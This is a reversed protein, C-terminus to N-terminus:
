DNLSAGARSSVLVHTSYVNSVKLKSKVVTGSKDTDLSNFAQWVCNTVNKLLTAMDARRFRAPAAAVATPRHRARLVQVLPCARAVAMARLAAASKNKIRNSERRGVVGGGGVWRASSVRGGNVVRANASKVM